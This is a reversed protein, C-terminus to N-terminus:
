RLAVTRSREGLWQQYSEETHVTVVARMKYHGLGCLEACALEYEGPKTAEFWVRIHM